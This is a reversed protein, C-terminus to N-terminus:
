AILADFEGRDNVYDAPDYAHSALVLCVSDPRRVTIDVWSLPPLHLALRPSDLTFSARGWPSIVSLDLSGHLCLIGQHCTRHAHGGRHGGEPLEYMFFVRRVEFPFHGPTEAFALAGREDRFEPLTILAPGSM